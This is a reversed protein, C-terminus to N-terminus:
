RRVSPPQRVSDISLRRERQALLAATVLVYFLNEAVAATDGLVVTGVLLALMLVATAALSATTYFGLVLSFGVGTEIWPLAWGLVRVAVPPVWSEEFAELMGDVFDGPGGQLKGLGFFFLMLGLALRVLTTAVHRRIM